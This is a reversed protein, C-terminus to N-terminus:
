IQLLEEEKKKRLIELEAMNADTIEQIHKELMKKQDENIEKEEEKRKVVHLVDQRIQRIMIKGAEIKAHALKIFERRREETLPSVSLRIINGDVIPILGINAELIGKEIDQIVSVDFPQVLLTKSDTTTITALEMLKMKTTGNYALIPINEILTPTARGSRITSLDQLTIEFAKKMKERTQTLIDDIM